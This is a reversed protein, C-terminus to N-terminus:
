DHNQNGGTDAMLGGHQSLENIPGDGNKQAREKQMLVMGLGKRSLPYAKGM